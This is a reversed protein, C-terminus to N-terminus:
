LRNYGFPTYFKLHCMGRFFFIKLMFNENKGGSNEGLVHQKAHM